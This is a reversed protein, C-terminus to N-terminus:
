RCSQLLLQSCEVVYEDEQMDQEGNPDKLLIRCGCLAAALSAMMESHCTTRLEIIPAIEAPVTSNVRSFPRIM